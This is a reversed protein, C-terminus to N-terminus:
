NKELVKKVLKKYNGLMDRKGIEKLVWIASEGITSEKKDTTIFVESSKTFNLLTEILHERLIMDEINLFMQLVKDMSQVLDEELFVETFIHMLMNDMATYSFEKKASDFATKVSPINRIYKIREKRPLDILPNIIKEFLEETNKGLEEVYSYKKLEDFEIKSINKHHRENFDKRFSEVQISDSTALELLMQLDESKLQNVSIDFKKLFEVDLDPYEFLSGKLAKRIDREFISYPYVVIPLKAWIAEVLANGFGEYTSPYSIMDVNAYVDDLIYVKDGDNDKENRNLGIKLGKKNFYDLIIIDKGIELELSKAYDELQHLYKNKEPSLIEDGGSILLKIRSAKKPDIKKLRKLQDLMKLSIDLGKREIIRVINGIIFDDEEVGIKQRFDKNFNDIEPTKKEFNMVNFVINRNLELMKAENQLFQAHKIRNDMALYKLNKASKFLRNSLINIRDILQDRAITNIFVQYINNGVMPFALNLYEEVSNNLWNHPQYMYREFWFDHNHIIFTIDKRRESLRALAVGLPLQAPITNSNEPIIIENGTSNIWKEIALEIKESQFDLVIRSVDTLTTRIDSLIKKNIESYLIDDGESESIIKEIVSKMEKLLIPDKILKSELFYSIADKIKAISSFHRFFLSVLHTNLEESLIIDANITTDVHSSKVFGKGIYSTVQAGGSQVGKIVKETELSVGDIDGMRTVAFGVKIGERGFVEMIQKLTLKGASLNPRKKLDDNRGFIVTYILGKKNKM